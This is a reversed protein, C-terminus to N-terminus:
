KNVAGLCFNRGSLRLPKKPAVVYMYPMDLDHFVAAVGSTPNKAVGDVLFMVLLKM